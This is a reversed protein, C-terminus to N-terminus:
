NIELFQTWKKYEIIPILDIQFIEYMKYAIIEKADFDSCFYQKELVKWFGDYMCHIYGNELGQKMVIKNNMIFLNGWKEINKFFGNLSKIEKTEEDTAVALKLERVNM